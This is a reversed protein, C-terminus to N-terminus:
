GKILNGESAIPKQQFLSVFMRPPLSRKQEAIFASYNYVPDDSWLPEGIERGLPDNEEAYAPLSLLKWRDAEEDLLRGLLDDLAWRTQVAVVRGAPVSTSLDARYWDYLKQKENASMAQEIGKVPDDVLCMQCRTGTVATGVGVARVEAGSRLAWRDAATTRDDLQIGLMSSHEIVLSRVRISLKDALSQTHSAIVISGDATPNNALWWAAFLAIYTSKGAGPSLTVALRAIMGAAVDTLHQLILRHHKAPEYGAYRCWEVLDSRIRRRQELIKAASSM